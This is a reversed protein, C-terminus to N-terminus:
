YNDDNCVPLDVDVVVPKNFRKPKVGYSTALVAANVVCTESRGASYRVGMMDKDDCASYRAFSLDAGGQFTVSNSARHSTSAYEQATASSKAKSSVDPTAYPQAYMGDHPGGNDLKTATKRTLDVVCQKKSGAAYDLTIAEQQPADGHIGDWRLRFGGRGEHVHGCVALVPRIRALAKRLELCGAENGWKSSNDCFGKPPTHTVVIDM